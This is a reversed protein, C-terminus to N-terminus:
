YMGVYKSGVTHWLGLNIDLGLYLSKTLGIRKYKYGINAVVLMVLLYFFMAMYFKENKITIFNM